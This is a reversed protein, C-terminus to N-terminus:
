FLKMIKKIVNIKSTDEISKIGPTSNVEIFFLKKTKKCRIADIGSFNLKIIKHIKLFINKEKKSIKIKKPTGGQFINSRYEGPSGVREIISIIKNNLILCRIDHIYKQLIYEQIIIKKEKKLIYKIKKIEKLNKILYIGQGKCNNLSKLLIPFKKIKKKIIFIINKYNFNIYYTKPILIKKYKSLKILTSLKNNALKIAKYKNIKIKSIKDLKKLINNYIHNKKNSALRSILIDIKKIIKKKYIIIIKNNKIELFCKEPNIFIIKYKKNNNEEIFRQYFYFNKNLAVIAIIKKKKNCM